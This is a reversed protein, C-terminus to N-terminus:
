RRRLKSSDVRVVKSGGTGSNLVPIPQGTLERIEDPALDTKMQAGELTISDEVPVNDTPTETFKVKAEVAGTGELRANMNAYGQWQAELRFRWVIEEYIQSENFKGSNRLMKEVFALIAKIAEEGDLPVLVRTVNRPDIQVVTPIFSPRVTQAPATTGITEAM